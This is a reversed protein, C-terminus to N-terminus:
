EGTHGRFRLYELLGVHKAHQVNYSQWFKVTGIWIGILSALFGMFLWFLGSGISGSLGDRIGNFFSAGGLILGIGLYIFAETRVRRSLEDRDKPELRSVWYQHREDGHLMTDQFKRVIRATNRASGVGLFWKSIRKEPEMTLFIRGRPMDQKKQDVSSHKQEFRPM